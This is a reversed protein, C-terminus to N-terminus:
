VLIFHRLFSLTAAAGTPKLWDSPVHYYRQSPQGCGGDPYTDSVAADGTAGGNIYALNGCWGTPKWHGMGPFSCLVICEILGNILEM